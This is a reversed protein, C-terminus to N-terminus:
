QGCYCRCGLTLSKGFTQPSQDEKVSAQPQRLTFGALTGPEATSQVREKQFLLFLFSM